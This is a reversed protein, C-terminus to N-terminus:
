GERGRNGHWENEVRGQRYRWRRFTQWSDARRRHAPGKPGGMVCSHLGDDFPDLGFPPAHRRPLVLRPSSRLQRVNCHTQLVTVFFFGKCSFNTNASQVRAIAALRSGPSRRARGYPTRVWAFFAADVARHQVRKRLSRNDASCTGTRANAVAVRAVMAFLLAVRSAARIIM